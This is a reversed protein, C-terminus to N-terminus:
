VCPGMARQFPELVSSLYSEHSLAGTCPYSRLVRAGCRRLNGRDLLLHASSRLAPSGLPDGLLFPRNAQRCSDIPVPVSVGASSAQWSADKRACWTPVGGSAAMPDGEDLSPAAYVFALAACLAKLTM